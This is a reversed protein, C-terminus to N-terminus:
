LQQILEGAPKATPSAPPTDDGASQQRRFRDIAQITTYLTGRPTNPLRFTELPILGKGLMDDKTYRVVTSYSKRFIECAEHLTVWAEGSFRESHQGSM